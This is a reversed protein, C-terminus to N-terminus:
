KWLNIAEGKSVYKPMMIKTERNNLIYYAYGIPLEPENRVYPLPIFSQDSKKMFLLVHNIQKIESTLPDFGKSVDNISGTLVFHFGLYAKNKIFDSIKTELAGDINQKFQAFEDIALIIPSFNIQGSKNEALLQRYKKERNMLEKDVEDIWASIQDKGELYSVQKHNGFESLSRHITDCIGVMAEEEALLSHLVIKLANTKGKETDGVIILHSNKKFDAYIPQVNEEDLGLAVKQPEEDIVYKSNFDETNLKEPLMPIAVPKRAHVHEKQINSIEQKINELLEVETEGKTPLFVQSLYTNDKRIHARGPIPETDYETKGIIATHESEDVLYHVIKTKLNGLMAHKISGSRSGTLILFVGISQGDRSLQVFENEIEFMEDRVVDFNDIVIYILPLKEKVIDNYLDIHSVEYQRFLDKRHNIEQQIFTFFKEIKREEDSRFYDGTHPLNRLPLLAGNGFDFIYFQFQEPTTQRAINLLLTSVTMSKGFGSSGFVGINGDSVAEFYYKRQRQLSPEDTLALLFKRQDTSQLDTEDMTLKEALPPLWPSRVKRLNLQQTVKVIEENVVEIETRKLRSDSEESSVESLPVLGLDTVLAIEDETTVIDIEYPAGSWASQFLEYIENNGVQLYGRGTVTINAADGNKLIEKSDQEDQVKLAVKFRSNSWIQNDIVGGPKQTALILHVGLSRGIRAASVLEDIFEPEEDKLEAFEDSILFLHPMPETAIGDRYLHMYDNIHNVEYKEFLRQRQELESKISALARNSFNRSGEINTITGLLHPLNRFPQAMGGGKYDILLFAVEHPHYNVAMSLIYTQLFESKGSGTTGALLGHPGHAREHLNLYVLDDKSKLGVPAELSKAPNNNKWNELINLKSADDQEYMELFTVKEPISDSMGLEHNLSLLTRAFWENGGSYHKDLAFPTHKARRDQILIDGSHEDIYRVLTFINDTLSEKRDAAFITTIGLEQQNLRELYTLIAHESILQRNTVIFVFHPIFRKEEKDEDLDREKLIEYISSLIQDRTKENYILGRAYMHPLQIHPLWKLWEWDKYEDEEFIAVFRIDHYSQFFSLQGIIQRIERKVIEDQGIFGIAGHRLDITLPVNRVEKYHNVLEQFTELLDDIERDKIERSHDDVEYAAPVTARGVRVQLFDHSALTREWIRDSLNGTLYKMYEFSPFHYYLVDRQQNYLKQLEVRKQDIYQKYLRKRKKNEEKVRKREKFYQVSSTIITMTFMTISILIFIGRPRIMMIAGMVILMVIPPLIVLWLDRQNTEAERDPLAFDVRDTPLDYIMRPTRRYNPYKDKLVSGPLAINPLSLQYDDKTQVTIIDEATYEIMASPYFIRDGVQLETQKSIKKGNIFVDDTNPKLIWREFHRRLTFCLASKRVDTATYIDIEQEYDIYYSKKSWPNPDFYFGILISEIKIEYRKQPTIEGITEGDLAVKFKHTNKVPKIMLPSNAPFSKFTITHQIENGISIKDLEGESSFRHCYVYKDYYIWLTPM